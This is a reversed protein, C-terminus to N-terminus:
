RASKASRLAANHRKVATRLEECVRRVEPDDPDDGQKYAYLAMQAECIERDERSIPKSLDFWDGLPFDAM